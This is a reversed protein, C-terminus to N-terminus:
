KIGPIFSYSDGTKGIAAVKGVGPKVIHMGAIYFGKQAARRMYEKRLATSAAPNSDYSLYLDPYRFQAYFHVLDGWILLKQGGSEIMYGTHGPTHGFLPVSTVGETIQANQPFRTIQEEYAKFFAASQANGNKEWYVAEEEPIMVRARPFVKDGNEDLMGGIHDYHMHTLCIITIDKPELGAEKLREVVKGGASAPTGTDFLIKIKGTDLLFYNLAKGNWGHTKKFPIKSAILNEAVTGSDNNLAYFKFAGLNYVSVNGGEAAFACLACFAACAAFIIKRM